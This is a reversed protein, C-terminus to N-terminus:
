TTISSRVTCIIYDLEIRGQRSFSPLNGVEFEYYIRCVEREECVEGHWLLGGFVEVCRVVGCCVEVFGGYEGAVVSM